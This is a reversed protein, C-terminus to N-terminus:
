RFHVKLIFKFCFQFNLRSLYAPSLLWGAIWGVSKLRYSPSGSAHCKKLNFLTNVGTWKWFVFGHHSTHANLMHAWVQRILGWFFNDNEFMLSINGSKYCYVSISFFIPASLKFVWTLGQWSSQLDILLANLPLILSLICWLLKFKLHTRLRQKRKMKLFSSWEAPHPDGLLERRHLQLCVFQKWPGM